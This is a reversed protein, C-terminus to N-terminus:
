MIQFNGFIKKVVVNQAGQLFSVVFHERVATKHRYNTANAVFSSFVYFFLGFPFRIVPFDFRPLPTEVFRKCLRRRPLASFFYVAQM